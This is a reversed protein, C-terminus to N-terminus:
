LFNQNKWNSFSIKNKTKMAHECAFVLKMLDYVNQNKLIKINKNKISMVFNELYQSRLNKAPYDNKCIKFNKVNEDLTDIYFAEKYNSIFSKKTGFLKVDHFHPHCSLAQASIQAIKGDRYKLLIAIHDDVDKRLDSSGLLNMGKNSGMTLIEEPWDQFLYYALDLMHIIAGQILSYNKMKLRWGDLIKNPRGWFYCLNFSLIEGFLGKSIEDKLKIFRPTTRLPFNSALILENNKEHVEYLKKLQDQTQCLPKEVFIHKKAELGRLIQSYHADDYSAISIIDIDKDYLIEEYNKAIKINPFKDAVERSKFNDIDYIYKLYTEDNKYYFNAHHLGVGLGVVATKLQRKNTTM